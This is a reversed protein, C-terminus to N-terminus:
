GLRYIKFCPENTPSMPRVGPGETQESHIAMRLTLHVLCLAVSNNGLKLCDRTSSRPHIAHKNQANGEEQGDHANCQETRIRVRGLGAMTAAGTITTATAVTAIASAMTAVATTTTMTAATTTAVAAVTAIAATAM